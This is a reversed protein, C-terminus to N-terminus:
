KRRWVACGQRIEGTREILRRDAMGKLRRNIQVDTLRTIQAMEKATYEGELLAGWILSEHGAMFEVARQAAQHSTIPDTKRSLTLELQM